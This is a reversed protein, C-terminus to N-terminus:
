LPAPSAEPTTPLPTIGSCWRTQDFMALPCAHALLPCASTSAWTAPHHPQPARSPLVAAELQPYILPLPPTFGLSPKGRAGRRRHTWGFSVLLLSLSPSSVTGPLASLSPLSIKRGYTPKCSLSLSQMCPVIGHCPWCRKWALRLHGLSLAMHDIFISWSITRTM